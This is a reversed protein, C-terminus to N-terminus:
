SSRLAKLRKSNKEKLATQSSGNSVYWSIANVMSNAM